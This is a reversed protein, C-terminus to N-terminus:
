TTSTANLFDQGERAHRSGARPRRSGLRLARGAERNCRQHSLSLNARTTRGGMSLPVIHELSCQNPGPLEGGCRFCRRVGLRWLMERRRRAASM